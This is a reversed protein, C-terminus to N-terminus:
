GALSVDAHSRIQGCSQVRVIGALISRGSLPPWPDYVDANLEPGFRHGDPELLVQLGASTMCERTPVKRVGSSAVLRPPLCDAPRAGALAMRLNDGGYRPALRVIVSSPSVDRGSVMVPRIVM